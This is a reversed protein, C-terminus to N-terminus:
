TGHAPVEFQEPVFQIGNAASRPSSGPTPFLKDNKENDLFDSIQVSMEVPQSGKNSTALDIEFPVGPKFTERVHGPALAISQAPSSAPFIAILLLATSLIPNKMM